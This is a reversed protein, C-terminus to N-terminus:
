VNIVLFVTQVYYYHNGRVHVLLGKVGSSQMLKEGFKVCVCLFAERFNDKCYDGARKSEKKVSKKVVMFHIHM